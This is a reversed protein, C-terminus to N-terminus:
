QNSRRRQPREAFRALASEDKRSRARSSGVRVLPTGVISNILPAMRRNREAAEATLLRNDFGRRFMLGNVRQQAYYLGFLAAMVLDDRMSASRQNDKDGKGTYAYRPRAILSKPLLPVRRFSRLQREFEGRVRKARQELTLKSDAYPNATLLTSHYSVAGLALLSGFARVYMEPSGPNTHVGYQDERDCVVELNEFVGILSEAIEQAENGLNAEPLLVIRASRFCAHARLARVHSAVLDRTQWGFKCPHNDM